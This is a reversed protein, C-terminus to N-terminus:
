AESSSVRAKLLAEDRVEAVGMMVCCFPSPSSAPPLCLFATMLLQGNVKVDALVTAGRLRAGAGIRDLLKISARSNLLM